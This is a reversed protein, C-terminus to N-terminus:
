LPTHLSRIEQGRLAAFPVGLGSQSRGSIDELPFFTGSPTWLSFTLAGPPLPSRMELGTPMASGM